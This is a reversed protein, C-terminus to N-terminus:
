ILCSVCSCKPGCSGLLPAGISSHPATFPAPCTQPCLPVSIDPLQAGMRLGLSRILASPWAVPAPPALTDLLSLSGQEPRTM